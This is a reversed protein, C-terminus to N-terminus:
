NYFESLAKFLEKSKTYKYIRVGFDNTKVFAWRFGKDTLFDVEKLYQTPYEKDWKQNNM